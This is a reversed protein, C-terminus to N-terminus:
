REQLNEGASRKEELKAQIWTQIGNDSFRLEKGVKFAFPLTQWQRYLWDKSKHLIEAAEDITLLRDDM